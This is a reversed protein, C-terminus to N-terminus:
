LALRLEHNVEDFDSLLSVIIPGVNQFQKLVVVPLTLDEMVIFDTLVQVLVRDQRLMGELSLLFLDLRDLFQITPFTDKLLLHVELFVPHIGHLMIAIIIFLLNSVQLLLHMLCFLIMFVTLFIQSCCILGYSIILGLGVLEFLLNLSQFELALEVITLMVLLEGLRGDVELEKLFLDLVIVIM